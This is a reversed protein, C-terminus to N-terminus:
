IGYINRIVFWIAALVTVIVSIYCNAKCVGTKGNKVYHICNDIYIDALLACIVPGFYNYSIAERFELRACNIIFRSIGCGPCNLGTVLRVMCPIGIHWIGCITGYIIGLVLIKGSIKVVNRIREQYLNDINEHM